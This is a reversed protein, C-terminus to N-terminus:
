QSVAVKAPEPIAWKDWTEEIVINVQARVDNAFPRVRTEFPDIAVKGEIKGVRYRIAFNGCDEAAMATIRAGSSKLAESTADRLATMFACRAESKIVVDGSVNKSQRVFQHDSSQRHGSEGTSSGILSSDFSRVVRKLSYTKFFKSETDPTVRVTMAQDVIAVIVNRCLFGTLFATTFVLLVFRKGVIM